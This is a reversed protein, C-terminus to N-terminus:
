DRSITLWGVVLFSTSIWILPLIVFADGMSAFSTAGSRHTYFWLASITVLLSIVVQVVGLWHALTHPSVDTFYCLASILIRTIAWVVVIAIVIQTSLAGLSIKEIADNLLSVSWDLLRNLGM